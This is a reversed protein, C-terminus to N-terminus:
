LDHHEELARRVAKRGRHLHSKVTNVPMSMEEAIERVPVEYLYYATLISRAPEALGALARRTHTAREAVSATAEPDDGSTGAAEDPFGAQPTLRRQPSRFHDAIRRRTLRYLWTALGCGRYSALSRWASLLVEQTIDEADEPGLGALRCHSFIRGGHRTVLERWAGEDGALCRAALASDAAWRAAAETSM